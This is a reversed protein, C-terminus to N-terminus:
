LLLQGACAPPLGTPTSRLILFGEGDAVANNGRWVQEQASYTKYYGRVAGDPDRRVMIESADRHGHLEHMHPELWASFDYVRSMVVLEPRGAYDHDFEAGREAGQGTFNGMLASRLLTPNTLKHRLYSRQV